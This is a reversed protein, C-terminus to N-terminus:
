KWDLSSNLRIKHSQYHIYKFLFFKIAMVFPSLTIESLSAKKLFYVLKSTGSNRNMKERYNAYFEPFASKLRLMGLQMRRYRVVEEQMSNLADAQAIVKESIIIKDVMMQLFVDDNIISPPMQSGSTKRQIDKQVKEYDMLYLGAHLQVFPFINKRPFNLIKTILSKNQTDREISAGVIAYGYGDMEELLERFADPPCALDGDLFVRLNNRAVANLANWAHEKGKSSEVIRIRNDQQLAFEQVIQPTRDTSSNVGVLIEDILVNEQKLVSLLCRGINKEENYAPICISLPFM